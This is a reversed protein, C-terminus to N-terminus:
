PRIEMLAMPSMASRCESCIWLGGKIASLATTAGCDRCVAEAGVPQRMTEMADNMPADRNHVLVKDLAADLDRLAKVADQEGTGKFYQFAQGGESDTTILSINLYIKLKSGSNTAM